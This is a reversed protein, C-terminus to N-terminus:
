VAIHHNKKKEQEYRRRVESASRNLRCAVIALAIDFSEKRSLVDIHNVM